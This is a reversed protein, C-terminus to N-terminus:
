NQSSTYGVERLMTASANQRNDTSVSVGQSIVRALERSLRQALGSSLTWFSIQVFAKFTLRPYKPKEVALKKKEGNRKVSM